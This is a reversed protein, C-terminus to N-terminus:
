EMWTRMLEDDFQAVFIVEAQPAEDQVESLTQFDEDFTKRLNLVAVDIQQLNIAALMEARSSCPIVVSRYDYLVEPFRRSCLRTGGGTLRSELMRSRCM